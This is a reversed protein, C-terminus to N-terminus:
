GKAKYQGVAGEFGLNFLIAVIEDFVDSRLSM